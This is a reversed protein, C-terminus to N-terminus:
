WPENTYWPEIRFILMNGFLHKHSGQRTFSRRGDLRLCGLIVELAFHRTNTRITIM